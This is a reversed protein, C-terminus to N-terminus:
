GGTAKKAGVFTTSRQPPSHAALARLPRAHEQRGREVYTLLVYGGKAGDNERPLWPLHFPPRAPPWAHRRRAPIPYSSRPAASGAACRRLPLLFLRHERTALEARPSRLLILGIMPCEVATWTRPGASGARRAVRRAARAAARPRTGGNRRGSRSPARARTSPV